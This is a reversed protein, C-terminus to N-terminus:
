FWTNNREAKHYTAGLKVKSLKDTGTKISHGHGKVEQGQVKIANGTDHM